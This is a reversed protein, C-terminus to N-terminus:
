QNKSTIIISYQSAFSKHYDNSERSSTASRSANIKVIHSLRFSIVLFNQTNLWTISQTNDEIRSIKWSFVESFIQNTNSSLLVKASAKPFCPPSGTGKLAFLFLEKFSKWLLLLTTCSRLKKNRRLQHILSEPYLFYSGDIDTLFIQHIFISEKFYIQPIKLLSM